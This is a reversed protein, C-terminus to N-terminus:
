AATTKGGWSAWFQDGRKEVRIDLVSDADAGDVSQMKEEPLTGELPTGFVQLGEARGREVAKKCHALREQGGPSDSWPRTGGTNPAWLMCNSAGGAEHRVDGNFFAFVVDGTKTLGSRSWFRNALTVGRMGFAQSRSILRRGDTRRKKRITPKRALASRGRLSLAQACLAEVDGEQLRQANAHLQRLEPTTLAQIREASWVTSRTLPPPLAYAKKM